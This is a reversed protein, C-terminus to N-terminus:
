PVAATFARRLADSCTAEDRMRRLQAQGHQWAASLQLSRATRSFRRRRRQAMRVLPSPGGTVSRKCQVRRVVCALPRGATGTPGSGDARHSASSRGHRTPPRPVPTFSVYRPATPWSSKFRCAEAEVMLHIGRLPEAGTSGGGGWGWGGRLPWRQSYAVGPLEPVVRPHEVVRTLGLHAGTTTMGPTRPGPARGLLAVCNKRARLAWRQSYAGGPLEPVVRLCEVERPLGLHTGTTSM